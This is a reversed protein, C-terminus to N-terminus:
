DKKKKKKKKKKKRNVYEGDDDVEWRGWGNEADCEADYDYHATPVYQQNIYSWKMDDRKSLASGETHVQQNYDPKNFGKVLVVVFIVLLLIIIEM